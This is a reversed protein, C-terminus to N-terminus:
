MSFSAQNSYVPNVDLAQQIGCYDMKPEQQSAPFDQIMCDVNPFEYYDETINRQDLSTNTSPTVSQADFVFQEDSMIADDMGLTLGVHGMYLTEIGVHSFPNYVHSSSGLHPMSGFRKTKARSRTEPSTMKPIAIKSKRENPPQWTGCRCKQMRTLGPVNMLDLIGKPYCRGEGLKRIADMFKEHLEQTWETSVKKKFKVIDHHQFSSEKDQNAIKLCKEKKKSKYNEDSTDDSIYGRMLDEEGFGNHWRNYTMLERLQENEKLRCIKERLVYQWLYKAIEMALPKKIRLFAGDELARRTFVVDDDDLLLIVPFDMKVAYQLLKFGCSDPSNINEMLLDFRSKGKSLISLATSALKVAIVKYSFNELLDITPAHHNTDHDVLLVHIKYTKTQAM